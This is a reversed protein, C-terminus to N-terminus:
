FKYSARVGFQRKDPLNATFNSPLILTFPAPSIIAALNPFDTNALGAKITDDNFVNDVYATVSYTETEIGTRFDASWFGQLYSREDDDAYRKSQAQVSVESVWSMDNGLDAKNDIMTLLFAQRAPMDFANVLGQVISLAVIWPLTIRGSFVLGALALSTNQYLKQM